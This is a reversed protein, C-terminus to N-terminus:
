EQSRWGNRGRCNGKRIEEVLGEIGTVPNDFETFTLAVQHRHHCDSGGTSPLGKIRAAQLSRLTDQESNMGNHTEVADLGEIDYLREMFSDFDRFPHAAVCIGGLDHIRMTEINERADDFWVGM